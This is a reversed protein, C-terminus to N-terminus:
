HLIRKGIIYAAEELVDLETLIHGITKLGEPSEVENILHHMECKLNKCLLRIYPIYNM